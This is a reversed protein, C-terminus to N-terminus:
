QKTFSITKVSDTFEIRIFHLGADLNEVSIVTSAGKLEGSAVVAGMVNLIMYEAEPLDEGVVIDVKDKAPNPFIMIEGKQQLEGIGTTGQYTYSVSESQCGNPYTVAVTYDGAFLPQYYQNTAGSLANGNYYWQYTLGSVDAGLVGVLPESIVPLPATEVQVTFNISEVQGTVFDTVFLTYTTTLSPFLTVVATDPLGSGWSFGLSDSGGSFLASVIISDGECIIHDQLPSLRLDQKVISFHDAIEGNSKLYYGDLKNKYIDMVFSGMAQSGAHGYYMVPHNMSASGESSGSNGCVVYVTGESTSYSSDKVYANGQDFNGNSGDMLMTSPNWDDSYGYHGKILYSREFVHSHGNVVLDVDYEELLPVIKERMAKMVLEYADDSDHSGKTYPPQHWYAITFKRTNQQLDAEIWAKMQNIGDYTLTYDFVESNLSLFHVDGYDFSYFVEHQSPVGGAEGYKPVEVLDFYPGEHDTLAINTYPIGLFTSEEWVTNYDHNGPSPWFPLHTFVDSFGTVNFVKQQYQADSGDDYANDGLWLWVDAEREGSYNLFSEKVEVQGANARGFDGIAWVRVSKVTGPVPHTRFYQQSIDVAIPTVTTGVKYYYKTDAQLGTLKIEHDTVSNNIEEYLNLNTSDQGYWVKSSTQVDTRWMIIISEDTVTQMYPGRIITQTFVPVFLSVFTILTLVKKM